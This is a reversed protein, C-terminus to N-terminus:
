FTMLVSLNKRNDTCVDTSIGADLGVSRVAMLADCATSRPGYSFGAKAQAVLMTGFDPFSSNSNLRLLTEYYLDKTIEYGRGLVLDSGSGAGGNTMLYAPHSILGALYHGNLTSNYSAWSNISHGDTSPNAPYRRLSSTIQDGFVWDRAIISSFADAFGEHLGSAINSISTFNATNTVLSHTWEHYSVDNVEMGTCFRSVSYGGSMFNDANPCTSNTITTLNVFAWMPAGLNDVGDRQYKTFTNYWNGMWTYENDVAAIGSAVGGEVRSATATSITMGDPDFGTWVDRVLGADHGLHQVHLIQGSLGDILIDTPPTFEGNDVQVKWAPRTVNQANQDVLRPNFLTKEVSVVREGTARSALARQEAGERSVTYNTRVSGDIPTGYFETLGDNDSVVVFEGAYYPIGNQSRKVRHLLHGNRQPYERAKELDGSFGVFSTDSKIFSKISEFSIQESANFSHLKIKGRFWKLGSEGFEAEGNQGIHQRLKNAGRRTEESPQSGPGFKLVSDRIVIGSTPQSLAASAICMMAALALCSHKM